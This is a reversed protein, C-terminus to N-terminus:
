GQTVLLYHFRTANNGIHRHIGRQECFDIYLLRPWMLFLMCSCVGSSGPTDWQETHRKCIWVRSCFHMPGLSHPLFVLVVHLTSCSFHSILMIDVWSVHSFWFFWIAHYIIIIIYNLLISILIKSHQLYRYWTELGFLSENSAKCLLAMYWAKHCLFPCRSRKRHNRRPKESSYLWVNCCPRSVDVFVAFHLASSVTSHM